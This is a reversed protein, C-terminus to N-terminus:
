KAQWPSQYTLLVNGNKFQTSSLLQLDIRSTVDKFLPKGQGLILPNIMLRYEDILHLNTLQQVITGSGFIAIDKGDMAKLKAIEEPIIDRLVTVNKWIPGDTVADLNKSFGSQRTFRPM